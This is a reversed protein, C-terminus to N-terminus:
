LDPGLTLHLRWPSGPEDIAAALDLRIPGIPSIWRVGVGVSQKLSEDWDMMSNGFDSFVALRWNPKFAYDFEVSTAVLYRGGIVVGEANKPGLQQYAYGRVSHDGGAFFRLTPGLLDFDDVTLAGVEGRLLMRWDDNLRQIWKAGVKASIFNTDSLFSDHGGQLSLTLRYGDDIMNRNDQVTASDILSWEIAPILFNSSTTPESGFAFNERQYSLQYTRHWKDYHRIDNFATRYLTSQQQEFSRDTVEGTYSYSDRAPNRGPIVYSVFGTNQVESLRLVSSLRHGRSNVWRRDFGLTVRAGTDTGYGVGLQYRNRNNPSLSVEIPVEQNDAQQWQPSVEVSSFYGSGALDIQLELLSRTTFPQGSEYQVFRHLLEDELFSCCFSTPGFQYREGSDFLLTADATQTTTEVHVEHKLLEADYYGREAALSRLSTKLREYSQHEFVQGTQPKLATVLKKFAADDEAAGRIDVTVQNYTTVNGLEVQYQILWVDATQNIQHQVSANYFGFPELASLIEQEGQRALYRVRFLSPVQKNELEKLSLFLQANRLLEDEIGTIEVKLIAESTQWRTQAHAPVVIVMMLFIVWQQIYRM